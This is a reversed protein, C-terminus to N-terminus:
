EGRPEQAEKDMDKHKSFAAWFLLGDTVAAALPFLVQELGNRVLGTSLGIIVSSTVTTGAIISVLHPRLSKFFGGVRGLVDRVRSARDRGGEVVAQVGESVYSVTIDIPGESSELGKFTKSKGPALSIQEEVKTGDPKTGYLVLNKNAGAQVSYILAYGCRLRTRDGPSQTTAWHRTVAKQEPEAGLPEQESTIPRTELIQADVVSIHSTDSQGVSGVSAMFANMDFEPESAAADSPLAIPEHGPMPSAAGGEAPPVPRENVTPEARSDDTQGPPSPLPEINESPLSLVGPEQDQQGLAADPAAPGDHSGPETVDGDPYYGVPPMAFASDLDTDPEQESAPALPPPVPVPDLETDPEQERLPPPPAPVPLAPDPDTIEEDREASRAILEPSPGAPLTLDQNEDNGSGSEADLAEIARSSNKVLTRVSPVSDDSSSPMQAPVSEADQSAAAPAPGDMAAEASDAAPRPAPSDMIHEAQPNEKLAQADPKQPAKPTQQAKAAKAQQEKIRRLKDKMSM